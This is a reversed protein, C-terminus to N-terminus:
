VDDGLDPPNSLQPIAYYNGDNDTLEVRKVRILLDDFDYFRQDAVTTDTFWNELAETEECIINQARNLLKRIETEGLHPHHQKVLEILERQQVGSLEAM